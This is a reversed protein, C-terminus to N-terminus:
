LEATRGEASGRWAIEPNLALFGRRPRRILGKKTLKAMSDVVRSKYVASTEVIAKLETPFEVETSSSKLIVAMLVKFDSLTLDKDQLLAAWADNFILSYKPYKVVPKKSGPTKVPVRMVAYTEGTDPDVLIDNDNLPM